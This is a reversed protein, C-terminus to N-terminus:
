ITVDSESPPLPRREPMQSKKEPAPTKQIGRYPFSVIIQEGRQDMKVQAADCDDPVSFSNSFSSVSSGHASKSEMKGKITVMGKSVDIDLQQDKTKPTIILSRGQATEEWDTSFNASSFSNISDMGLFSDNMDEELAKEIDKFLDQDPGQNHLLKDVMRRHMEERLEMRRKMRDFPAPNQDPMIKQGLSIAAWTFVLFIIALTVYMRKM